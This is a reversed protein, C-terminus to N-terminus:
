VGAPPKAELSGTYARVGASAISSHQESSEKPGADVVCVNEDVIRVVDLRRCAEIGLVAAATEAVYFEVDVDLEVGTRPHALKAPLEGFTRLETRDFM